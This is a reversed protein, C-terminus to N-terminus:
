KNREKLKNERRHLCHKHYETITTVTIENLDEVWNFKEKFSLHDVECLLCDNDRIGYPCAYIIGYLLIKDM